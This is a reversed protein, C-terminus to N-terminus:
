FGYKAQTERKTKRNNAFQERLDSEMATAQHVLYMLNHKRKQGKSPKLHAYASSSVKGPKTLQTMQSQWSDVGMQDRANIERIQIAGSEHEKKKRRGGLKAIIEDNLEMESQQKWSDASSAYEGSALAAQYHGEHVENSQNGEEEWQYGDYSHENYLNQITRSRVGMSMTSTENHELNVNNNFERDNQILSNSPLTLINSNYKKKIINSIENGLPFFSIDENLESNIDIFDKITDKDKKKSTLGASKSANKNKSITHPVFSTTTTNTGVTASTSLKKENFAETKRPSPLLSFLSTNSVVKPRKSDREEESQSQEDEPTKPLDVFIKIPGDSRKSGKLTSSTANFNKPENKPSPKPSSRVIRSPEQEIESESDSGYDAVLSM